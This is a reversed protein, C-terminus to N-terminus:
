LVRATAHPADGVGQAARRGAPSPRAGHAVRGDVRRVDAAPPPPPRVARRGGRQLGADAGARRRRRPAAPAARALPRPHAPHLGEGAAHEPAGGGHLDRPLRFAGRDGRPQARVRERGPIGAPLRTDGGPPPHATGHGHGATPQRARE